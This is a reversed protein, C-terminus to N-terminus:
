LNGVRVGNRDINIPIDTFSISIEKEDKYINLIVALGQSTAKSFYQDFAFNGISYYIKKGKYMETDGVIHTHTGVVVDAGSDIFAHAWEKMKTTPEKQYEVGWHPTVILVDVESRLRSIEQFVNNFNTYYFEHFGVLGIRIGNKIIVTSTEAKNFPDGYYLMGASGVYRRTSELGKAGYNYSHNNALGMVDFGLVSLKPALAPDFTFILEKSVLSATVSPNTTFAGELNAIAVDTSQILDRVGVFFGEFGNRNIINRVNRDLMLDGVILVNIGRVSQIDSTYPDFSIQNPKLYLLVVIFILFISVSSVIYSNRVKNNEGNM